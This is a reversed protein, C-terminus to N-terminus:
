KQTTTGNTHTEVWALNNRADESDPNLQLAAEFQERAEDMRNLAILAAGLNNYAEVLKPNFKLAQQYADVAQLNMGLHLRANGINYYAEAYNPRFSVAAQYQEIAEPYRNLQALANGLNNHAEPFGPMSQIAQRFQEEAAEARNQTMFVMGLNNHAAPSGRDHELVYTWMVERNAFVQAYLCSGAGMTIVILAVVSIELRRAVLSLRAELSAIGAVALGILGIMPLYLVHDMVWTFRMYAATIGGLFPMLNLLFFGFGLVVHRGWGARTNWSLAMVAVAALWPLFQLPALSDIAWKPYVPMLNVPVMAKSFYFWLVHGTLGIRWVWGEPIASAVAEDRRLFWITALGVILSVAFFPVSAKFDGRGVKGRKWWGYLLIVVPFMVMVPKCLMAALFLGLALFYERRRGKEEYDIWAGMALLFLPLSLTNKLEAIWVVSEVMVPHVAFILGGLWALRLGLKALLRWLLLASLFHLGVNTLHYGLTDNGWLQWQLWVVSYKLPQYDILGGPELWIKWWGAPDHILSNQTVLIDDDWLWGGHVVPLYIVAAAAAIVLVQLARLWPFPAPTFESTRKRKNLLDGGDSAIITVVRGCPHSDRQM